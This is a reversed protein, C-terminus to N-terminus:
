ATPTALHRNLASLYALLSAAIIDTSIGRGTSSTGNIAIRVTVEGLADQGRTVARLDYSELKPTLGTLADVASFLADVPGDGVAAQRHVQGECELEVSATPLLHNGSQIQYTHLAWTARSVRGGALLAEVDEDTVEGKRDCLAKFDAFAADLATETLTFGLDAAHAAFAHRGSLKGLSLEGVPAGITAPTFIEYTRPDKLVGDQHIGSQHRFINTGVIPANPPIPLGCLASVLRATRHLRRLTLNHKQEPRTLELLMALQELSANGAREGLGSCTVEAQTAGGCLGQYSNAVALGLDNHCHVSLAVHEPLATRITSVLDFFGAPTATGVTDPLNCTTAGAAAAAAFVEILFEPETRTADEASFQVDPCLTAAYTVADVVAALVQERTMHLKHERHLPSTAIFVHLRPKVAGRLSEWATAIDERRARCLACVATTTMAAAVARVAAADGPSAAPFGAEIVDVGLKELARAIEVKEATNLNVGPTQEGDRLTTDFFTICNM